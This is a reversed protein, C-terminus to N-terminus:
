RLKQSTDASAEYLEKMKGAMVKSGIDRKMSGGFGTVQDTFAHVNSVAVTGGQRAPLGGGDARRQLRHQRLVGAARGRPGRGDAAVLVHALVYTMEDHILSKLWFFKEQMGPLTAQPYDLLVKQFAPLYKQLARPRRAPRACTRPSIM